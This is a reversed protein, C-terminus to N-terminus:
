PISILQFPFWTVKNCFHVYTPIGTMELAFLLSLFLYFYPSLILNQRQGEEQKCFLPHQSNSSTPSAVPELRLM